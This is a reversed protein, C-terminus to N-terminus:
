TGAKLLRLSSEDGSTQSVGESPFIISFGMDGGGETDLSNNRKPKAIKVIPV